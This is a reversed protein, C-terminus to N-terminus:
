KLDNGGVAEVRLSSLELKGLVSQIHMAKAIQYHSLAALEDVLKRLDQIERKLQEGTVQPTDSWYSTSPGALSDM